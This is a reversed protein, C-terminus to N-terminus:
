KGEYHAKLALYTAYRRDEDAKEEAAEAEAELPTQPRDYTIRVDVAHIKLTSRYAIPTVVLAERLLELMYAYTVTDARITRVLQTVTKM